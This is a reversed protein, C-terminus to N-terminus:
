FFPHAEGNRIVRAGRRRGSCGERIFWCGEEEMLGHGVIMENITLASEVHPKEPKKLKLNLNRNWERQNFIM